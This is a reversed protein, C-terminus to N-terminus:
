EPNIVHDVPEDQSLKVYYDFQKRVDELEKQKKKLINRLKYAKWYGFLFGVLAAFVVILFAAWISVPLRQVLLRIIPDFSNEQLNTFFIFALGIFIILVVIKLTPKDPLIERDRLLDYIWNTIVGLFISALASIIVFSFSQNIM